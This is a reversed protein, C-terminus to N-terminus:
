SKRGLLKLKWSKGAHDAILNLLQALLPLTILFDRTQNPIGYADVVDVVM